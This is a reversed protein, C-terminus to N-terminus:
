QNEKKKRKKGLVLTGGALGMALAFPAATMVIGTPVVGNRYNDYIVTDDNAGMKTVATTANAVKQQGSVDRTNKNTDQRYSIDYGEGDKATETIQYSMDETLGWIEIRQDDKLYFTLTKAGNNDTTFYYESQNEGLADGTNTLIESNDKAKTLQAVNSKTTTNVGNLTYPINNATANTLDVHYRSNPVGGSITVTFEFYEERNGQNGTVQKELLIDYTSYLNQFGADKLTKVASYLNSTRDTIAKDIEAQSAPRYKKGTSDVLVGFDGITATTDQVYYEGNRLLDDAAVVAFTPEDKLTEVDDDDHFVYGVVGLEGTEKTEVYVDLFRSKDSDNTIGQQDATRAKETVIYRYIGPQTFTVNAFSMRVSQKAYKQDAKFEVTDGLQVEQYTTQGPHFEDPQSITINAAEVGAFVEPTTATGSVPNGAVVTYYSTYHPVNANDDLVLYKDFYTVDGTTSVNSKGSQDYLPAAMAQSALSCTMLAAAVLVHRKRFKRM